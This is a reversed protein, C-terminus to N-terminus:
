RNKTPNLTTFRIQHREQRKWNGDHEGAHSDLLDGQVSREEEENLVLVSTVNRSIGISDFVLLPALLKENAGERNEPARRKM